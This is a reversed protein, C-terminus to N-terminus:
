SGFFLLYSGATLIVAILVYRVFVAGWSVAWSSAIYAGLSNGGALVFGAIWDVQGQIIFVALAFPTFILNIFVKLANAKVLDYGANLVLASLLFIGVGAQIFGGYVGILFFITIRLPYNIKQLSIDKGYLWRRANFLMPILMIFLVIGVIIEIIREPLELVIFAGAVSGLITPLALIFGTKIDLLKKRYFNTSSVINQFFIGIRNTGNAVHPDLGIFMLAPLSILSGSGALTNIFGCLVGIGLILLIHELSM